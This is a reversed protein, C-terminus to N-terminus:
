HTVRARGHALVHSRRGVRLAHARAADLGSRGRLQEEENGRAPVRHRRWPVMVHSSAAPRSLLTRTLVHMYFHRTATWKSSSQPGNQRSTRVTVRGRRKAPSGTHRRHATRVPRDHSMLKLTLSWPRLSWPRERQTQRPTEPATPARDSFLILQVPEGVLDFVGDLAGSFRGDEMMRIATLSCSSLSGAPGVFYGASSTIRAPIRSLVYVFTVTRARPMRFSHSSSLRAPRDVTSRQRRPFQARLYYFRRPTVLWPRAFMTVLFM